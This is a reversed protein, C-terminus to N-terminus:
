VLELPEKEVKRDCVHCTVRGLTLMVGRGMTRMTRAEHGMGLKDKYIFVLEFLFFIFIREFLILQITRAKRGNVM